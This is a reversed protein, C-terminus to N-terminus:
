APVGVALPRRLGVVQLEAFVAVVLAQAVIFAVGLTTPAIWGTFLLLISGAAWLVNAAIVAVVGAHPPTERAALWFVVAAFPFLSLGAYRLLMAHLGLLDDVLGAGAVMLAGTAGSIAADALLARRLFSSPLSMM